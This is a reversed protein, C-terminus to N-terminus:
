SRKRKKGRANRIAEVSVDVGIGFRILTALGIATSAAMAM